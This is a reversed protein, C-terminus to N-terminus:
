REYLPNRAPMPYGLGLFRIENAWKQCTELRKDCGQFLTVTNGSWEPPPPKMLEITSGSDWFRIGINLGKRQVFGRHYFRDAEAPAGTLILKHGIISNVTYVNSLVGGPVDCSPDGFRHACMPNAQIGLPFELRDKITVLELRAATSRGNINRIAKQVWGYFVYLLTHAPGEDKTTVESVRVTVPAHVFGGTLDDLMSPAAPVEFELTTKEEQFGGSWPGLVIELSPLPTFLGDKTVVDHNANTVRLTNIDWTFEVCHVSLKTALPLERGM